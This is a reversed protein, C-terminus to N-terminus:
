PAAKEGVGSPVATPGSASKKGREKSGRGEGYYYYGAYYYDRYNSRELDVHNLVAGVVNPNVNRINTVCRRVMEKDTQNHRIVFAVMDVMSALLISDTLSAVPPSDVFVWDFSEKVENLLRMFRDSGFIDPPNPPLPGSTMAYLNPINSSKLYGRWGESESALIYNTMGDRKDLQLHIHVTPRRLDCDLVAVREGSAAMTKALNILTTSKGEQPSASTVLVINKSRNKRSFLLSTRLSQLSERVAYSSQDNVKPIISLIHLKLFNEVDETTKVTNDLYELFFALGVGMFLGTLLGILMNLGKRPRIPGLPVQAKDLIRINNNLLQSSLEIEKMRSNISDYIKRIEATDGRLLELGSTRHTLDLSEGKVDDIQALTKREHEKKIAYETKIRGLIKDCEDAIKADLRKIEEEKEVVKVHRAQYQSLLRQKEQELTIREKYLGDVIPDHAIEPISLTSGGSGAVEDVKRLVAEQQSLALRTETLDQQLRQLTGAMIKQQDEPVFIRREEAEEFTKEQSKALKERLPEMLELLSSVAKTTTRRAMELNRDAYVEALTNVWETTREKDNGEMSIVVIGTMEIPEITVSSKFADVPDKMKKFQPDNWLNLRDFVKESVARSKIIEFQTNYYRDEAFFSYGTAGLESVDAVPAVRRTSPQIEVKASAKYVPTQLFTYLGVLTAVIAFTVFVTWRWRWVTGWYDRLHVERKPEVPATRIPNEM